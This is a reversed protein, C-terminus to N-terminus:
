VRGFLAKVSQKIREFVLKIRDIPTQATAPKDEKKDNSLSLGISKTRLVVQASAPSANKSSTFSKISADPDIDIINSSGTQDSIAKDITTQLSNGVTKLKNSATSLESSGAAITGLGGLAQSMAKNFDSQSDSIANTIASYIDSITEVSSNIGVSADNLEALILDLNTKISKIQENIKSSSEGYNPLTDNEIKDLISRIEKAAALAVDFNGSSDKIIVKFGELLEVIEQSNPLSQAREILRDIINCLRETNVKLSELSDIIKDIDKKYGEIKAKIDDASISSNIDDAVSIIRDISSSIENMKGVAESLGKSLSSFGSLVDDSNKKIDDVYKTASKYAGQFDSLSQNIEGIGSSITQVSSLLDSMGSLLLTPTDGFVELQERLRKIQDLQELTGPEILMLLGILSFSETGIRITFTIDESPLATFLIVKYKGVEQIQAGSAEVSLIKQTDVIAALQMLINNKSYDDIKRNPICHANIEVVGHAGALEEAKKPVGNLKYSIDYSWALEVSNDVPVAEFFMENRNYSDDIQFEVRDEMLTPVARGTMDNVSSYKGYDVFSKNGNLQVHKVISSSERNGYYDLVEYLTEDFIPTTGGNHQEDAFCTATGSLMAICMLFSIIRIISKKM